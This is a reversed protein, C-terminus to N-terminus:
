GKKFSAMLWSFLHVAILSLQYMRGSGSRVEALQWGAQNHINVVTLGFALEQM